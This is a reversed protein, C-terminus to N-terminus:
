IVARGIRHIHLHNGPPVQTEEGRAGPGGTFQGPVAGGGPGSGKARLPHTPMRPGPRRRGAFEPIVPGARGAGCGRSHQAVKEALRCWTMPKKLSLM